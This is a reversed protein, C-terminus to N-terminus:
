KKKGAYKINLNEESQYVAFFLKSRHCRFNCFSSETRGTQRRNGREYYSEIYKNSYIKFNVHIIYEITEIKKNATSSDNQTVFLFLFV